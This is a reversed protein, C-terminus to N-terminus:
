LLETIFSYEGSRPFPIILTEPIVGINLYLSHKNLKNIYKNIYNYYYISLINCKKSNFVIILIQLHLEYTVACFLVIRKSHWTLTQNRLIKQYNYCNNHPNNPFLLQHDYTQCSVTCLAIRSQYINLHFNHLCSM